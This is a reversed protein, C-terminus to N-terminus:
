VWSVDVKKKMGHLKVIPIITNDQPMYLKKIVYSEGTTCSPVVIRKFPQKRVVENQMDLVYKAPFTSEGAHIHGSMFVDINDVAYSFNKTANASSGHVIAFGYAYQRDARKSGLSVKMFAIDRRYLHELDMKSMAEYLPCMDVADDTRFEHNGQVAVLIRDAVPTMKKVFWDKQERPSMKAEYSNTKSGKLANDFADGGITIYGFPDNKVMTIWSEFIFEDFMPSGIHPECMAYVNIYQLDTDLKHIIPTFNDEM